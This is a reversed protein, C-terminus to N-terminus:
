DNILKRVGIQAKIKNAKPAVGIPAPGMGASLLQLASALKEQDIKKNKRIRPM